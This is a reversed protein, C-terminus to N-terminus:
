QRSHCEHLNYERRMRQIVDVIQDGQKIEGRFEQGCASCQARISPEQVDLNQFRLYRNPSPMAAENGRRLEELKRRLMVHLEEIWRKLKRIDRERAIRRCLEVMHNADEPMM